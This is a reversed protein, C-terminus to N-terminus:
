VQIWSEYEDKLNDVVATVLADDIAHRSARSRSEANSAAARDAHRVTPEAL